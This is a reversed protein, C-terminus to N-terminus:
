LLKFQQIEARNDTYFSFVLKRDEFKECPYWLPLAGTVYKVEDDKIIGLNTLCDEFTKHYAFFMNTSDMTKHSYPCYWDMQIVLPYEKDLFPTHNKLIEKYWNHLETVVKARTHHGGKQSYFIQGNISVFRSTGASRSNAIIRGNANIAYGELDYGIAKYMKPIDELAKKVKGRGSNKHFYKTLRANATKVQYIYEPITIEKIKKFYKENLM